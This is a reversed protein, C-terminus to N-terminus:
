LSLSKAPDASIERYIQEVSRLNKILLDDEELEEMLKKCIECERLHISCNIRNLLPMSSHRFSDLEEKTFHPM